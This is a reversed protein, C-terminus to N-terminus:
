ATPTGGDIVTANKAWQLFKKLPMCILKPAANTGRYQFLNVGGHASLQSVYRVQGTINHKLTKGVCQEFERAITYDSKPEKRKRVKFYRDIGGYSPGLAGLSAATLLSLMARNTM